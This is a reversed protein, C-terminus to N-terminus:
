LLANVFYGFLGWKQKILADMESQTPEKGAGFTKTKNIVILCDTYADLNAANMSGVYLKVGNIGQKEVSCFQWENLKTNDFSSRLVYNGTLYDGM